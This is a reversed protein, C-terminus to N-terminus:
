ELGFHTQLIKRRHVVMGSLYLCLDNRSTEHTKHNDEPSEVANPRVVVLQSRFVRIVRIVLSEIGVEALDLKGVERSKRDRPVGDSTRFEMM